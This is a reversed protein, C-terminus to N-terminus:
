KSQESKPPLVKAKPRNAPTSHRAAVHHDDYSPRTQRVRKRRVEQVSADAKEVRVEIGGTAIDAEVFGRLLEIWADRSRDGSHDLTMIAIRRVGSSLTIGERRLSEIAAQLRPSESTVRKEVPRTENWEMALQLAKQLSLGFVGLISVLTDEGFRAGQRLSTVWGKNIGALAAFESATRDDGQQLWQEVRHMVFDKLLELEQRANM